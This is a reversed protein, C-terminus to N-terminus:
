KRVVSTYFCCCWVHQCKECKLLRVDVTYSFLYFSWSPSQYQTRRYVTNFSSRNLVANLSADFQESSSFTSTFEMKCTSASIDSIEEVSFKICGPRFAVTALKCETDM